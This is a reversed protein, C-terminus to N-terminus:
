EDWLDAFRNKQMEIKFDRLYDIYSYRPEYGLDRKANEIDM